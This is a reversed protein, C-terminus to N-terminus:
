HRRSVADHDCIPDETETSKLVTKKSSSNAWKKSDNAPNM